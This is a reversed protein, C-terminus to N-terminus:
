WGFWTRKVELMEEHNSNRPVWSGSITYPNAFKFNVPHFQRCRSLGVLGDNKGLVHGGQMEFNSERECM